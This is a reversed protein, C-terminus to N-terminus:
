DDFRVLQPKENPDDVFSGQNFVSALFGVYSLPVPYLSASHRSWGDDKPWQQLARDKAEALATKRSDAALIFAVHAFNVDTKGAKMLDKTVSVAFISIAYLAAKEGM